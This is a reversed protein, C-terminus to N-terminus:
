EAQESKVEMLMLVMMKVKIASMRQATQTHRASIEGTPADIASDQAAKQLTSVITYIASAEDRSLEVSRAVQEPTKIRFDEMAERFAGMIYGQKKKNGMNVCKDLAPCLLQHFKAEFQEFVPRDEPKGMAHNKFTM